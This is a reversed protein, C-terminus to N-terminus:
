VHTDPPPTPLGLFTESLAQTREKCRLQALQERDLVSTSLEGVILCSSYCSGDALVHEHDPLAPEHSHGSKTLEAHSEFDGVSFFDHTETLVDFQNPNQHDLPSYAFAVVAQSLMWSTLVIINLVNKVNM